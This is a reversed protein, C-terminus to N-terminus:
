LGISVFSPSLCAAMFTSKLADTMTGKQKAADFHAKLLTTAQPSRPDSPTFGVIIQVFDAIAADPSASSWHKVGPTATGDIVQAAVALCINETAARFFLTPANPLVPATSGRGYGDSPLGSVIEPITTQMQKKGLADLGCVDTFGLRANLAACFHDRRAVAVVEGHKEETKTAATNTTLPSSLLERVLTNWSYSSSKFVGIIRMVEPDDPECQTSNAYFCLKTVWAQAFLPHTALAKAFDGINSVPQTAGRYVFLGKQASYLPDLQDHYNWSYTASLISRLPDLTQHCGLCEPGSSAHAQDLGPTSSPVTSDSGDVQTGTAVILAQNLTVRMQNSKNTQWNAFFAPTTFFGIRPTGLVLTSAKRLSGLDYFPTAGSAGEQITVMRWDSFDQATLQPALATGGFQPCTAGTGSKHNDISGMLIFHLSDGKAPMVIPDEACGAVNPNQKLVDPDYWHMYNPSNPDLTESLAIPGSAASITLMQTPKQSLRFRDTVKGADDVQWVDLFAYLEMMATTMMLKQTTMTETFPGSAALALATRAFSEQANQVILPTTTGNVSIQRPFMQDAFDVQSIQTQQFALEFFRMMKTQYEPLTMWVDILAKLQSPDATVASIEADTPPLGVLLGKVKAVYVSPPDAQFPLVSGDPADNSPPPPGQGAGGSYCAFVGVLASAALTSVLSFLPLSKQSM